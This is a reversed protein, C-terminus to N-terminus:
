GRAILRAYDPETQLLGQTLMLRGWWQLQRATVIPGPPSIQMHATVPPPLKLFKGLSARVAADNAPRAMFAAAEVIGERFAKLAAPNKQAWDRRATHLITPYGEPLFTTYYAAVYGTGSGLIRAMFPGATVVADISGGRLLDAHQPFPAEVFSVRASDVHNLALWERFTVHLLAGLGPVGIKKGVCDAAAHIQTGTRAVLGVETYSNSLVGGGGVVVHDLGGAVAQLFATPTPGGMQLSGSEIAPVIVPNLPIFQPEVELGRRVFFGQDVAVFVTAFDTVASYAYAIRTAARVRLAPAALALATGASRALFLRRPLTKTM